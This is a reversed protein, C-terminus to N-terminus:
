YDKALPSWPINAEAYPILEVEAWREILNFQYRMSVIDTFSFSSRLEEILTVPYNSVGTYSVKGMVILRELSRAYLNTPFNHWCPPWHLQLLDITSVGLRRLSGDVAKFVDDPSLFDGPIKTAIVVEDRQIKLERLARGIFDESLGRRYVVATNIFNVGVSHARAIIAKAAEYSM